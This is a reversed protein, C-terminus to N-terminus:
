WNKRPSLPLELQGSMQRTMIHGKPNVKRGATRPTNRRWRMVFGNGGDSTKGRYIVQVCALWGPAALTLECAEQANAGVGASAEVTVMAV